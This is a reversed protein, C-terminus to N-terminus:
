AYGYKRRYDTFIEALEGTAKGFDEAKHKPGGGKAERRPNAALWRRMEDEVDAALNMGFHDYIRYITAMQDRTFERFDVDLYREPEAAKYDEIKRTALEWFDADRRILREPDYNEEEYMRRVNALLNVLSPTAEVPDRHTQIIQADPFAALVAKISFIDTPNKMMWRKHPTDAGILRHADALWMYSPVEDAQRYWADYSPVHWQEPFHNSCFTAALLFLTEEVADVEHMHDNLMEPAAAVVADLGAKAEQYPKLTPWIERPPRPMPARTLWHEFGQFQPDCYLLRHLATTGSRPIGCIILPKVIPQALADPRAKFGAQAHLLARLALGHQSATAKLGNPTVLGEEDISALHRDMNALFQPDGFDDYGTAAIADDLLEQKMGLATPKSM